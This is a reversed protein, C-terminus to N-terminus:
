HSVTATVLASSSTRRYKKPLRKHSISASNKGDQKGRNTCTHRHHHLCRSAKIPISLAQLKISLIFISFSLCRAEKWMTLWIQLLCYWCADSETLYASRHANKWACNILSGNTDQEKRQGSEEQKQKTM